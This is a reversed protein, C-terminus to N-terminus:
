GAVREFTQRGLCSGRGATSDVMADLLAAALPQGPLASPGSQSADRLSVTREPSVCQDFGPSNVPDRRRGIEPLHQCRAFATSGNRGTVPRILFKSRLTRIM